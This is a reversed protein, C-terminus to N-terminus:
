GFDNDIPEYLVLWLSGSPHYAYGLLVGGHATRWDCGTFQIDCLNNAHWLSQQGYITIQQSNSEFYSSILSICIVFKSIRCILYSILYFPAPSIRSGYHNHIM